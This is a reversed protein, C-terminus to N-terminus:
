SIMNTAGQIVLAKVDTQVRSKATEGAMLFRRLALRDLWLM